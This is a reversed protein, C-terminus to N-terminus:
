RPIGSFQPIIPGSVFTLELEQLAFECAELLDQSSIRQRSTHSGGEFSLSTVEEDGALVAELATQHQENIWAKGNIEGMASAKRVLASVLTSSDAM